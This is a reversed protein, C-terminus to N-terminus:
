RLILWSRAIIEYLQHNHSIRRALLRGSAGRIDICNHIHSVAGIDHFEARIDPVIKLIIWDRWYKTNKKEWFFCNCSATM